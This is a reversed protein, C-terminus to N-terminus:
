WWYHLLVKSPDLKKAELYKVLPKMEDEKDEDESVYKGEDLTVFYDAPIYCKDNGLEQDVWIDKIVNVVEMPLFKDSQADIVTYVRHIQRM